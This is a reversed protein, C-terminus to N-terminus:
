SPQSSGVRGTTSRAPTSFDAPGLRGARTSEFLLLPHSWQPELDAEVPHVQSESLRYPYEKARLGFGFGCTLYHIAFVIWEM